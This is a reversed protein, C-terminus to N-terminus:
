QQAAPAPTMAKVQDASYKFEVSDKGHKVTFPKSLDLLKAFVLLGDIREGKPIKGGQFNKINQPTGPTSEGGQEVTFTKTDIEVDKPATGQVYFMTAERIRARMAYLTPPQFLVPLSKDNVHVISLQVDGKLVRTYDKLPGEQGSLGLPLGAALIFAALLVKRMLEEAQNDHHHDSSSRNSPDSWFLRHVAGLCGAASAM